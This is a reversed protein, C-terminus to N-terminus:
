HSWIYLLTSLVAFILVSIVLVNINDSVEERIVSVAKTRVRLPSSHALFFGSLVLQFPSLQYKFM